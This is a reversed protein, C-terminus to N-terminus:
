LGPVFRSLQGTLVALRGTFILVGFVILLVGSTVEIARAHKRMFSMDLGKALAMAVLVFPVALGLSYVGLLLAGQGMTKAQSALLLVGSLVPGLCPTWGVAFSMGVFPSQLYSGGGLRGWMPRAEKALFPIRLVGLVHLGLLVVVIGGIRALWIKNASLFGGLASASAGLAVFVAAFGLCFLLANAVVKAFNRSEGLETVSVGSLYSVYAPVLAAVCPSAFSLVGAFFVAVISLGGAM